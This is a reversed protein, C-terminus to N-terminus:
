VAWDAEPLGALRDVGSAICDWEARKFESFVKRNRAGSQRLVEVNVM